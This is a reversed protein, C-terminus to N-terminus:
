IIETGSYQIWEESSALAYTGATLLDQAVIAESCELDQEQLHGIRLDLSLTRLMSSALLLDERKCVICPLNM